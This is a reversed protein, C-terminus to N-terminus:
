GEVECLSLLTYEESLAGPTNNYWTMMMRLDPLITMMTVALVGDEDSVRQLFVAGGWRAPTGIKEYVFTEGEFPEISEIWVDGEKWLYSAWIIDGGMCSQAAKCTVNGECYYREGAVAGTALSATILASAVRATMWRM